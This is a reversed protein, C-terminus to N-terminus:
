DVLTGIKGYHVLVGAAKLLRIITINYNYVTEYFSAELELNARVARVLNETDGLDLDFNIQETRLWQKSITLASDQADLAARAIIFNRYAEEVEFLVLQQAADRQFRVQNREAEAQEVSAKTQAFNLSQRFGLGVRLSRGRYPDSIYPSPQRYRGALLTAQSSGGIFLKPYYDSRAVNVLAERAALGATAQALEPRNNIAVDFYTWLSDLVMSVPELVAADTVVVIGEPLFLQRALASRALQRKQTVEVVRRNFEQETIQVQYLDADDVGEDGEDILRQIEDIAQEVIEGARETLRFLADTLLLNYYLEGTRGAVELKMNQVAATEVEIGHHAARISNSLEGWTFLPQIVDVQFQNLPRPNSWDNRVNPDLYLETTPLDPDPRELGPGVAHATTINFETAFRSAMALRKRAEAYAKGASVSGIEPSAELAGNIASELSVVLTDPSTTITQALVPDIGTCLTWLLCVFLQRRVPFLYVHRRM